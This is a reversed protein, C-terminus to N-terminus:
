LLLKLIGCHNYLDVSSQLIYCVWTFELPFATFKLGLADCDSNFSYAVIIKKKYRLM